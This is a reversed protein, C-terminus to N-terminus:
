SHKETEFPNTRGSADPGKPMPLRFPEASFNEEELHNFSAPKAAPVIEMIELMRAAIAEAAGPFHWQELASQMRVRVKGDAMERVLRFLHEPTASSQDLQRAAGSNMFAHANYYQHNDVAYPYPILISPVRVAAIEALSSAGARSLAVTAAGMALEMETLFPLVIAKLQHTRYIERVKERDNGGTLHLFQWEPAHRSFLPLAKLLLENIGSAGQSGGMVLLVPREPDLGLAMRQPAPHGPKFQPRVPTGTIKVASNWLQRAAEPFGAFVENVLPALWRNARGPICNSEHIFTASGFMKAALVPPASTFGGMALVARPPERSFLKQCLRFSRYCGGAFPGFRPGTWAVAPLTVVEKVLAAKVGQQDVEKPSVLLVIECGKEQLAEAIALGPFLHGGTGGCAIAVLPATEFNQM